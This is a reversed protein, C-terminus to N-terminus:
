GSNTVKKKDIEEESKPLWHPNLGYVADSWATILEDPLAAVQEFTPTQMGQIDVVASILDPYVWRLTVLEVPSDQFKESRLDILCEDRMIARKIGMLANATQVTIIVGCVEIKKQTLEFM